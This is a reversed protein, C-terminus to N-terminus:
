GRYSKCLVLTPNLRSFSFSRPGAHSAVKLDHRDAILGVDDSQALAEQPLLEDESSQSLPNEQRNSGEGVAERRALSGPPVASASIDGTAPRCDVDRM